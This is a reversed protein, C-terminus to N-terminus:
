GIHKPRSLRLQEIASLVNPLDTEVIHAPMQKNIHEGYQMLVTYAAREDGGVGSWNVAGFFVRYFIAPGHSSPVLRYDWEQYVPESM